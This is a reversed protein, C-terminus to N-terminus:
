PLRTLDIAVIGKPLGTDKDCQFFDVFPQAGNAAQLSPFFEGGYKLKQLARGNELRFFVPDLLDPDVGFSDWCADYDNPHDTATVFSGDLFARRCGAIRLQQLALELGALLRRRVKNAGFRARIEEWDARHVGPPLNGDATFNPLVVCCYHQTASGDM